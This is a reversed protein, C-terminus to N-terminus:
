LSGKDAHLIDIDYGKLRDLLRILCDNLRAVALAIDWRSKDRIGVENSVSRLQLFALREKLGIYHLAAGEMSEVVAPTNQQLWRIREPSTTIENVTIAAVPPVGTLAQLKSYPNLLRGGSFPPHDPEALRLDFVTKFTRDEWVGLDALTEDGIVAVEGPSKDRLSGAIGAQIILDPRDGDIGRLLSWTAPLIGVGTILVSLRYSGISPLIDITPQIETVTAATLLIHM